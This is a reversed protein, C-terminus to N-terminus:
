AAGAKEEDTVPTERGALDTKMDDTITDTVVAGMAASELELKEDDTKNTVGEAGEEEEDEEIDSVAAAAGEPQESEAMASFAM